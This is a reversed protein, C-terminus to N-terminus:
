HRCAHPVDEPNECTLSEENFVKGEGCTILRPHGDVCTILRHCDNPVAFRPYPWFRAAVTGSPVSQPCKFGVVAEPNCQDLLQDPWNCGHIRHDYVLGPECLEQHVEGFACKHYSTSCEAADPYIGFLYECGPTSLPTQDTAFKRAGCEVAWNYNCHNHVAGKGDFLLGNECTELTLTGNTCLFFQDCHDPHLYAQEGYPEPCSPAAAGSVQAVLALGVITTALLAGFQKM